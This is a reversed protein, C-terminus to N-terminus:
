SAMAGRVPPIIVTAKSGKKPDTENLVEPLTVPIVGRSLLTAMFLLVMGAKGGYDEETEAKSAALAYYVLGSGLQENTYQSIKDLLAKPVPPTLHVGEEKPSLGLKKWFNM